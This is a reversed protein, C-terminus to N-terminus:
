FNTHSIAGVSCSSGSVKLVQGSLTWTGYAALNTVAWALAAAKTTFKTNGSSTLVGNCAFQLNYTVTSDTPLVDYYSYTCSDDSCDQDIQGVAMHLLTPIINGPAGASADPEGGPSAACCTNCLDAIIQNIDEAPSEDQDAILYYDHGGAKAYAVPFSVAPLAAATLVPPFKWTQQLDDSHFFFDRGDIVTESPCPLHLTTPCGILSIGDKAIVTVKITNSM